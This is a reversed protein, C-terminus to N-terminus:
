LSIAEPTKLLCSRAKSTREDKMMSIYRAYVAETIVSQPAGGDLAIMSSWKGTGKNAGRDLIMDVIPKSKDDGFTM